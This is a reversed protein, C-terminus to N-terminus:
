KKKPRKAKGLKIYQVLPIKAPCVYACSGCEMCNMIHYDDVAEWRAAKVLQAIQYPELFVPCSDVCRGCRICPEEAALDVEEPTQVVVGSTGKVVPVELSYQAIGMMPGGCIVKGVRDFRCQAFELLDRLRTGVRVLYNGPRGVPTGTVTVVREYLPKDFRLKEAIAVCTAVNQM